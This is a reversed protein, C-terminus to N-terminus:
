VLEPTACHFCLDLTRKGIRHELRHDVISVAAQHTSIKKQRAIDYIDLLENYIKKTMNRAPIAQYGEPLFEHMVNILGGANIVFDPAYLINKAALLDADEPNLLQNNAAGAIARCRLHPISTQNLIGGLANPSFIDCEVSLIEETTAITAGYHHACEKVTEEHIDSVILHAGEWFLLEALRKGVSGLGQIAIVKGELSTNGELAQLVSKIGQFTGQATYISPNGGGRLNHVGCAYKTKELIIDIDEPSCGVDEACIYNGEFTNVAEAFAYLLERTKDKKPDAIIVSKAGGLGARAMGAKYTMGKSLRLVDTLADDFKQYPYIRTGGLGPGLDTNHIAIIAILGSDPDTFKVVKEYDAIEIEEQKLNM